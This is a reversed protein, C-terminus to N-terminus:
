ELSGVLYGIWDWDVLWADLRCSMISIRHRLVRWAGVGHVAGVVGIVTIKKLGRLLVLALCWGVYGLFDMGIM